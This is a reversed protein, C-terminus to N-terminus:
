KGINMKLVKWYYKSNNPRTKSTPSQLFHRPIVKDKQFSDIVARLPEQDVDVVFSTKDPENFSVQM